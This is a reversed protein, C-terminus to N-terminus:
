QGSLSGSRSAQASGIGSMSRLDTRHLHKQRCGSKHFCARRLVYIECQVIGSDDPDGCSDTSGDAGCFM